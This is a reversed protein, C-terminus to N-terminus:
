EAIKTEMKEYGFFDLEEGLIDAVLNDFDHTLHITDAPIIREKRVNFFAKTYELDEDDVLMDKKLHIFLTPINKNEELIGHVNKGIKRLCGNYEKKMKRAGNEILRAIGDFSAQVAKHFNFRTVILTIPFSLAMLGFFLYIIPVPLYFLFNLFWHSPQIRSSGVISVGRCNVLPEKNMLEIIISGGMSHGTIIYPRDIPLKSKLEDIHDEISYRGANTTWQVNEQGFKEIYAPYERTYNSYGAAVMLFPIEKTM